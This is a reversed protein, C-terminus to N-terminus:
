CPRKCRDPVPLGKTKWDRPLRALDDGDGIAHVNKIAALKRVKAEFYPRKCARCYAILVVVTKRDWPLGLMKQFHRRGAEWDRVDTYGQVMLTLIEMNPKVRESRMLTLYTEARTIKKFKICGKILTSFLVLSRGHRDGHGLSLNTLRRQLRAANIVKCFDLYSNTVICLNLISSITYQDPTYKLQLMMKFIAWAAANYRLRTLRSIIINFTKVSPTESHESLVKILEGLHDSCSTKFLNQVASNLTGTPTKPKNPIVLDLEAEGM